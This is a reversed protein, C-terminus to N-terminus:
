LNIARVYYLFSWLDSDKEQCPAEFSKQLTPIVTREKKM